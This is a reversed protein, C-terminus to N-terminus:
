RRYISIKPRIRRNTFKLNSKCALADIELGNERALSLANLGISGSSGLVIM